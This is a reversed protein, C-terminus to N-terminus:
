TGDRRLTQAVEQVVELAAAAGEKPTWFAFQVANGDNSRYYNIFTFDVGNIRAVYQLFNWATGGITVTDENQVEVPTLGSAGQAIDIIAKRLFEDTFNGREPIIGLYISLDGKYFYMASFAGEARDVAWQAESLCFSFGTDALPLQVLGECEGDGQRAAPAPAYQWTGDQFLIISRGNLTTRGAEAAQALAPGASVLLVAIVAFFRKM